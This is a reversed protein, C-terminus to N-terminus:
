RWIVVVHWRNMWKGFGAGEFSDVSLVQVEPPAVGDARYPISLPEGEPVELTMYEMRVERKAPTRRPAAPKTTEAM